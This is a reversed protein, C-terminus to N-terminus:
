ERWFRSLAGEKLVVIKMKSINDLRLFRGPKKILFFEIKENEITVSNIEEPWKSVALGSGHIWEADENQENEYQAHLLFIDKGWKEIIRGILRHFFNKRKTAIEYRAKEQRNRENRREIEIAIEM